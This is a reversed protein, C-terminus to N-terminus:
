SCVECRINGGPNLVQMAVDPYSALLDTLCVTVMVPSLSAQVSSTRGSM